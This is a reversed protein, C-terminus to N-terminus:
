HEFLLSPHEYLPDPRYVHQTFAQVSVQAFFFVPTPVIVVGVVIGVVIGVFVGLVGLEVDIILLAVDAAM